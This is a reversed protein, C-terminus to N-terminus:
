CRLIHLLSLIQRGPLVLCSGPSAARTLTVSPVCVASLAHGGHLDAGPASPDLHLQRAGGAGLLVPAATEPCTNRCPCGPADSPAPAQPNKVPMRQRHCCSPGRAPAGGDENKLLTGLQAHFRQQQCCCLSPGALTVLMLYISLGIRFV